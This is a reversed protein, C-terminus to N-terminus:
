AGTSWGGGTKPVYRERGHACRRETLRAPGDLKTGEFNGKTIKMGVMGKCSGHTPPANFDCPCGFACNCNKMWEGELRWDSGTM